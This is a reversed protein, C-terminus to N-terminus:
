ERPRVQGMGTTTQKGVGAYFAYHALLHFLWDIRDDPLMLRYTIQGQFGLERHREKALFTRTGLEYRSVGVHAEVLARVDEVPFLPQYYAHWANLLGLFVLAPTPFLATKGQSRFATPSAFTLGVRRPLVEKKGMYQDYLAAYSSVGAWPHGARDTFVDLVHFGIRDLELTAPPTEELALLAEAVPASFGTLRLWYTEGPSVHSGEPGRRVPGRLTSCTFPKRGDIEHLEGALRPEILQLFQSYVARGWWHPGVAAEGPRVLMVLSILDPIGNM